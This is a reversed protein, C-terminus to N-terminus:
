QGIAFETPGESPESFASIILALPVKQHRSVDIDSYLVLSVGLWGCRRSLWTMLLNWGGEKM